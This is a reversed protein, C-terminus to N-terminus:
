ENVGNARTCESWERLWWADFLKKTNENIRCSDQLHHELLCIALFFQTLNGFGLSSSESNTESNAGLIGYGSQSLM